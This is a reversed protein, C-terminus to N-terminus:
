IDITLVLHAATDSLCGLHRLLCVAVIAIVLLMVRYLCSPISAILHRCTIIIFLLRTKYLVTANLATGRCPDLTILIVPVCLSAPSTTGCHAAIVVFPKILGTLKANVVVVHTSPITEHDQIPNWM